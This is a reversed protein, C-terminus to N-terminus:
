RSIPFTKPGSDPLFPGMSDPVLQGLGNGATYPAGKLGTNRLTKIKDIIGGTLMGQADQAMRTVQAQDIIPQATERAPGQLTELERIAGDVNGADLMVQARAVTAETDTGIVPQGEKQVKLIENFRVMARDRVSVDEGKLSSVIIEGTVGKLEASLGKPSLIGQEAYPSLSEIAANLEPDDSGIMSQLLALDESYPGSRHMTDRFQSLGILLAAAKMEKPSVGELTQALASDGNEVNVNALVQDIDGQNQGSQLGAVINQLDAVASQMQEQGEMSKQMDQIRSLVTSLDTGGPSIGSVKDELAMVRDMLSSDEFNIFTEAQQKLEGVSKEVSEMRTRMDSLRRGLDGILNTNPEATVVFADDASEQEQLNNELATIRVTQSDIKQKNYILLLGCVVVFLSILAISAAVSKRVASTVATKQAKQIEAMFAEQSLAPSSSATQQTGRVMSAFANPQEASTSSAVLDSIYIANSKAASLIDARRNGPIINRKKWGQVTTVPIGMKSAMPRIGGFREIVDGANPISDPDSQAPAAPKNM